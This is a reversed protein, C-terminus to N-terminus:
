AQECGLTESRERQVASSANVQQQKTIHRDSQTSNLNGFLVVNEEKLVASFGWGRM